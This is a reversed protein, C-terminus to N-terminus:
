SLYAVIIKTFRNKVLKFVSKHWHRFDKVVNSSQKTRSKPIKIGRWYMQCHKIAKDQESNRFIKIWRLSYMLSSEIKLIQQEWCYWELGHLVTWQATNLLSSTDETHSRSSSIFSLCYCELHIQTHSNITQLYKHFILFFIQCRSMMRGHWLPACWQPVM